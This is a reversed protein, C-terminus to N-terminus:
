VFLFKLRNQYIGPLNLLTKFKLFAIVKRVIGLLILACLGAVVTWCKNSPANDAQIYLNRIQSIKRKEM